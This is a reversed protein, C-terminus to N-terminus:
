KSSMAVAAPRDAQSLVEPDRESRVIRTKYLKGDPRTLVLKNKEVCVDIPREGGHRDPQLRFVPEQPKGGHLDHRWDRRHSCLAGADTGRQLHIM